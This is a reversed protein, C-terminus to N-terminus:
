RGMQDENLSALTAKLSDSRMPCSQVCANVVSTILKKPLRMLYEIATIKGDFYLQCASSLDEWQLRTLNSMLYAALPSNRLDFNSELPRGKQLLALILSSSESSDIPEPLYDEMRRKSHDSPKVNGLFQVMPLDGDTLCALAELVGIAVLKANLYERAIAINTAAVGKSALFAEDDPFGDYQNFVRDSSLFKFFGVMKQISKRYDGFTFLDGRLRDNREPLLLWTTALFLAHNESAFNQVDRNALNVARKVVVSIENEDFGLSFERNCRSLTLALAQASNPGKASSRFPITAEICAAIQSLVKLPLFPRLYHEALIASLFENLGNMPDLKQGPKVNFIGCVVALGPAATLADEKLFVGQADSRIKSSLFENALEPFGEDVQFYVVDHFLAALSLIPDTPLLLEFIHQARHFYRGPSSMTHAVIHALFQIDDDNATAGLDTLCREFEVRIRNEIEVENPM